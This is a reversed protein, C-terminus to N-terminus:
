ARLVSVLDTSDHRYGVGRVTTILNLDAGLKTRLRRVHVDVTRTHLPYEFGWVSRLLAPRSHVKNPHDCLFLLFDFEMRTLTVPIGDLAVRRSPRHLVLRAGSEPEAHAFPDPQPTPDPQPLGRLHPVGPRTNPPKSRVEVHSSPSSGALSQVTRALSAGVAELDEGRVVIHAIVEITSTGETAPFANDIPEVSM